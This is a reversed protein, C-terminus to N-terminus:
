KRMSQAELHDRFAHLRLLLEADQPAHTAILVLAEKAAGRYRGCLDLFEHAVVGLAQHILAFRVDISGLALQEAQALRSLDRVARTWSGTSDPTTLASDGALSICGTALRWPRIKAPRPATAKEPLAMM